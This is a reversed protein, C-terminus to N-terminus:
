AHAASSQSPKRQKARYSLTMRRLGFYNALKRKNVGGQARMRELLSSKIKKNKCIERALERQEFREKSSYISRDELLMKRLPTVSEILNDVANAFNAGSPPVTIKKVRTRTAILVMATAREGKKAHYRQRVKDKDATKKQKSRAERYKRQRLRNAERQEAATTAPVKPEDPQSSKRKARQRERYLRMRNKAGDNSAKRQEESINIRSQQKRLRDKERRNDINKERYRKYRDKGKEMRFTLFYM